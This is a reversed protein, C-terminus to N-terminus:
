GIIKISQIIIPVGKVPVDDSLLRLKGTKVKYLTKPQLIGNVLVNILSVSSPNPIRNVGYGKIGDKNTYIRKKGDSIAYFMATRAKLVRPRRVNIKILKSKNSNRM